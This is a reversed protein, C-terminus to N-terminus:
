GSSLRQIRALAVQAPSAFSAAGDDEFLEYLAADLERRARAVVPDSGEDMDNLVTIM